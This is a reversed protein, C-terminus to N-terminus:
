HQSAKMDVLIKAVAGPNKSWDELAQATEQFPVVRTVLDTFPQQRAELMRIVAPFVRLANRSGRIDLEKRVFLTTNYSVEQNAYGVYVVRGAYCVADVALRYTQPLGVAEIAM